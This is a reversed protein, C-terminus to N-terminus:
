MDDGGLDKSGLQGRIEGGPVNGVGQTPTGTSTHVNVYASDKAIIRLLESMPKGKLPGVFQEANFTGSVLKQEAHGGGAPVAGYLFVVVPGAQDANGLHIHSQVVNLIDNVELEYHMSLGDGSLRFRARGSAPSEPHAVPQENAGNLAARLGEGSHGLHDDSQHLTATIPATAERDKSSCAAFALPALCLAVLRRM